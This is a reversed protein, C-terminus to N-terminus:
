AQQRNALLPRLRKYNAQSSGIQSSGTQSSNIQSSRINGRCEATKQPLTNIKIRLICRDSLGKHCAESLRTIPGVHM